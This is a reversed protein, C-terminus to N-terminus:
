SEAEVQVVTVSITVAYTYLNWKHPWLLSSWGGPSGSVVFNVSDVIGDNDGDITGAGPFQGLGNVHNIADRLLTHERTRRHTGSDGGTYGIPNTTANYPQYYGRPQSDQYSIVTTAPTPYFTSSFTLQSYSVETFYNVMSNAGSGTDNYM